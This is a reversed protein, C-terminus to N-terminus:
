KESMLEVAGATVSHISYKHYWDQRQWLPSPLGVPVSIPQPTTKRNGGVM